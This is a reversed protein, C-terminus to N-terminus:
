QPVDTGCTGNAQCTEAPFNCCDADITCTGGEDSCEDGPLGLCMGNQCVGGCCDSDNGCGQGSVLCNKQAWFGRMNLNADQGPIWFAPHSPDEGPKPNLDIATFCLLKL